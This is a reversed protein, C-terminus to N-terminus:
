LYYDSILNVPLHESQITELEALFLQHLCHVSQVEFLAAAGVASAPINYLM